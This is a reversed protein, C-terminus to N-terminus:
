LYKETFYLIWKMRVTRKYTFSKHAHLLKNDVRVNEDSLQSQRQSERNQYKYETYISAHRIYLVTYHYLRRQTDDDTTHTYYSTALRVAFLHLRIEAACEDSLRRGGDATTTPNAPIGDYVIAFM